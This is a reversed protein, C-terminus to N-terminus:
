IFTHRRKVTTQTWIQLKYTAAAMKVSTQNHTMGLKTMPKWTLTLAYRISAKIYFPATFCMSVSFSLSKRCVTKDLTWSLNLTNKHIKDSLSTFFIIWLFLKYRQFRVNKLTSLLFNAFVWGSKRRLLSIRRGGDQKNQCCSCCDSQICFRVFDGSHCRM